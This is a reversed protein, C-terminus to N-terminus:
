RPLLGLPKLRRNKRSVFPKLKRLLSVHLRLKRSKKSASLKLKLLKRKQKFGSLKLKKKSVNRKLRRPLSELLRLKKSKKSASPKQKRLPM